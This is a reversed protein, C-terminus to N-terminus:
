FKVQIKVVSLKLQVSIRSINAKDKKLTHYISATTQGGNVIQFDEVYSIVLGKGDESKNIEIKEATAAIGNNFALFM